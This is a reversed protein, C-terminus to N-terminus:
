NLDKEGKERERERLQKEIEKDRVSQTNKKEKGGQEEINMNKM